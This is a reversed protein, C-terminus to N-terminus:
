VVVSSFNCINEIIRTPMVIGGQKENDTLISLIFELFKCKEVKCNVRLNLPTYIEM